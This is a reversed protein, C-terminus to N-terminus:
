RDSEKGPALRASRDRRWQARRALVKVDREALMAQEAETVWVCHATCLHPTALGTDALYELNSLGGSLKRVFRENSSGFVRTMAKMVADPINSLKEGMKELFGMELQTNTAM